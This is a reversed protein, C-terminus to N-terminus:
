KNFIENTYDLDYISKYKDIIKRSQIPPILDDDPTFEQVEEKRKISRVSVYDYMTGRIHDSDSINIAGDSANMYAAWILESCCWRNSRPDYLDFPKFNSPKYEFQYRCGIRCLAWRVAKKIIEQAEDEDMEYVKKVYGYKFDNWVVPRTWAHSITVGFFPLSEIFYGNWLYMACHIREPHDTHECYLIDGKLVENLHSDNKIENETNKM